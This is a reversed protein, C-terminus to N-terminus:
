RGNNLHWAQFVLLSWIAKRHDRRGAYHDDLMIRVLPPALIGSRRIASESLVEEIFPKFPGRIWSALPMMFGAKRRHVIRSPLLRAAAKKLLYKGTVGRLKLNPPLGSMFEVLRHDLYPVRVELSHAMSARDVKVLVGEQLYFKGCLYLLRNLGPPIRSYNIHIRNDIQPERSPLERIFEPSFLRNKEAESFIGMWLLFRDAAPLSAGKLFQGAHYRFSAYGDSAPSRTVAAEVARILRPWRNLKEMADHAAFSPYGAFLEDAGDGGLAVKVHRASTQALFHTPILSADGLPEDMRDLISPVLEAAHTSTLVAHHHATGYESSVLRAYDSEDYSPENFGISFSKIGARLTAVKATLFSSDLGGSLFLGVPVDSRLHLRVSDDILESLRASAEHEPMGHHAQEHLPIDWYCKLEFHSRRFTLWHGPPLKKIQSYITRPAPIYGFSFFDSVAHRDLEHSLGPYRLIAKIESAFVLDGAVRAYYLPKIGMRDRALFLEQRIRDWVAFAFMGNVEPLGGEGHRIFHHLLVETDSKNRFSVGQKELEDRLEIYNYIEGNLILHHRGDQSSMPQEGHSPDIISLRQHGFELGQDHYFGDGDPGRHQLCGTMSRIVNGPEIPSDGFRTFGAIGCM